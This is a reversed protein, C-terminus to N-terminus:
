DGVSPSLHSDNGYPGGGNFSGASSATQSAMAQQEQQGALAAQALPASLAAALVLTRLMSFTRM